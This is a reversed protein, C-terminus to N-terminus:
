QIHHGDQAQLGLSRACELWPAPHGPKTLIATLGRCTKGVNAEPSARAGDRGALTDQAPSVGRCQKGTRQVRDPLGVSSWPRAGARKGLDLGSSSPHVASAPLCLAAGPIASFEGPSNAPNRLPLAPLPSCNAKRWGEDGKSGGTPTSLPGAPTALLKRPKTPSPHLFAM